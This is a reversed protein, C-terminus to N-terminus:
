NINDFKLIEMYEKSFQDVIEYMGAIKDDINDVTADFEGSVIADLILEQIYPAYHTLDKYYDLNDIHELDQMDVIRVDYNSLSNVIYKKFELLIDAYGEEDVHHWYLASYPPFLFIYEISEQMDINILYEDFRNTMNDYMDTTDQKSVIASSNLYGNLVIEEGFSHDMSWDEIYDISTAMEFKQPLDIGAVDLLRLAIDVPIFRMWTEYGLLYKFDNLIKDDYLYKPFRNIEEISNFQTSDINIIIKEVNTNNSVLSSMLEIEDLSIGGITLKIPECDLKDRFSQMNFNQIMSSGIIVTDYDYNEIIGRNVFRSNLMYKNDTSRYYMFPDVVYAVIMLLTIFFIILLSLKKLWKLAESNSKM